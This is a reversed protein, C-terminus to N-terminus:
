KHERKSKQDAIAEKFLVSDGADTNSYIWLENLDRVADDSTDQALLAVCHWFATNFVKDYAVDGADQRALISRCIRGLIVLDDPKNIREVEGYIKRKTQEDPDADSKDANTKAMSSLTQVIDLIKEIQNSKQTVTRSDQNTQVRSLSNGQNLSANPQSSSPTIPSISHCGAVGLFAVEMMLLSFLFLKYEIIKM